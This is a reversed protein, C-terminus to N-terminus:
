IINKGIYVNRLTMDKNMVLLDAVKGPTISGVKDYIGAAKAPAATAAYVANERSMIEWKILNQVGSLMTATSGAITDSCSGDPNCLYATGDKVTIDQGGSKYNGETLGTPSISDSIVIFRERGICSYLLKIMGPHVHVGDCICECMIKEDSLAAGIIGPQRHHLPRMGNYTHTLGRAGASIAETATAYDSDTHGMFINIKDKYQKIFEISGLREPALSVIKVMNGSATQLQEFFACDADMLYDPHQAGKYKETFFPGELYVGWIHARNNEGSNQQYKRTNECARLMNEKSQTMITALIGTTGNSAMYQCIKDTADHSGDLHDAALAGHTHIDIFGPILYLGNLDVTEDPDENIGGPEHISTIIGNDVRVDAQMFYFEDNLVTANKFYM